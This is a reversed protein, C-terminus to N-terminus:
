LLGAEREWKLIPINPKLVAIIKPPLDSQEQVESRRIKSSLITKNLAAHIYVVSREARELAEYLLIMAAHFSLGELDSSYIFAWDKLKVGMVSGEYQQHKNILGVGFHNEKNSIIQVDPKELSTLQLNERLILQIYHLATELNGEPVLKWHGDRRNWTLQRKAYRRSNQKVMAIAQEREMEGNFHAFWEQYGVTQLAGLHQQHRMKRAEEELGAAVMLDVRRNIRDYLVDRSWSPQLYIPQFSRKVTKQGLYYSYPKGATLCVELARQLRVSNQQDVTSFYVPDHSALAEQLGKLGETDYLDKVELKVSEPIAPFSDLGECLARVFLGSGGVVIAYDHKEYIATLVALAEKEYQGANLAQSVSRDAIFHHKAAALEETSPRATGIHMEQYFQRSDASIIETDFHQALAIALSTKGSATPGGIVLLFKM